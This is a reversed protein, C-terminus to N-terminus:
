FHLGCMLYMLILVFFIIGTSKPCVRNYDMLILGTGTIYIDTRKMELIRPMIMTKIQTMYLDSMLDLILLQTTVIGLQPDLLFLALLKVTM